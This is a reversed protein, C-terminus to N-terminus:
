YVPLALLFFENRVQYDKLWAVRTDKNMPLVELAQCEVVRDLTEWITFFQRYHLYEVAREPDGISALEPPLM